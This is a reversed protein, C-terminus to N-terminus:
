VVEAVVQLAVVVTMRESERAAGHPPGLGCADSGEAVEGGEVRWSSVGIKVQTEAVAARGLM